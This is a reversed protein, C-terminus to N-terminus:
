RRRFPGGYAKKGTSEEYDKIEQELKELNYNLDAINAKFEPSRAMKRLVKKAKAKMLFKLIGFLLGENIPTNINDLAKQEFTKKKNSM